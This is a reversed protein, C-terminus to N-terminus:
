GKISAGETMRSKPIAVGARHCASMKSDRIM